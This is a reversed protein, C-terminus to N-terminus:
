HNPNLHVTEGKLKDAKMWPIFTPIHRAPIYHAPIHGPCPHPVGARTSLFLSSPSSDLTRTALHREEGRVSGDVREYSYGECLPSFLSISIMKMVWQPTVCQRSLVLCWSQRKQQCARSYAMKRQNQIINKYQKEETVDGCGLYTKVPGDPSHLRFDQPFLM